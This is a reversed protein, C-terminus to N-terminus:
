GPKRSAKPHNREPAARANANDLERRLERNELLLERSLAREENLQWKIKELDADCCANDPAECARTTPSHGLILWDASVGFITCIEAAVVAPPSARGKEYARLTNANIGIKKAFVKQPMSSRLRLIRDGITSM